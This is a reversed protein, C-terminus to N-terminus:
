QSVQDALNRLLCAITIPGIGGPVPTLLAAKDAVSPHVDGVLEGGDESTGADFIVVGEKVLDATIFHPKGIGTVIIDAQKVKSAQYTKATMVTVGAGRGEAYRTAPLGVLLGEGLILVKKGAWEVKHFKSIEDIAGAVPPLCGQGTSIYGFGDPDKDAPIQDLVKKRDIQEPLPLQVVIGEVEGAVRDVCAIIDEASADNSFEIVNLSIGVEKAKRTKMELYKKTEFNPSCTIAALRPTKKCKILDTSVSRLIKAAIVKGDVLM